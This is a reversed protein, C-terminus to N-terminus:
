KHLRGKRAVLDRVAIPANDIDIMWGQVLVANTMTNVLCFSMKKTKMRWLLRLQTVDQKQVEYDGDMIRDSVLINHLV